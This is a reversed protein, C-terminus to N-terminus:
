RALAFIRWEGDVGKLAHTGRDELELGSGVVLDRVTGSVLVESAAARAAVRAGIHVAMGALDDGRVECEGTHLGARIEIGARTVAEVIDAACRIGRAPGDFSALFGDGTHKVERGRHRSLARRVIEDHDALVASWRGDGLRGATETSGVIDTFLVTKLVRDPEPAHREGTLFEEVEDIWADQDGAIPLHPGPVEVYRAGPIADALLRSAARPVLLDESRAIVITPVAVVPLVDRVDQQHWGEVLRRLGSLSVGARLLKAWFASTRADDVLEPAFLPLGVPGGWEREWAAGLHTLVDAPVGADYDPTNVIRPGNSVLLVLSSVRDPHSATLM